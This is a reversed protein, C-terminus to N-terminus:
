VEQYVYPGLWQAIMGCTDIYPVGDIFTTVVKEKAPNIYLVSGSLLIIMVHCDM